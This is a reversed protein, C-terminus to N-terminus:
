SPLHGPHLWYHVLLIREFPHVTTCANFVEQSLHLHSTQRVVQRALATYLILSSSQGNLALPRADQVLYSLEAFVATSTRSAMLEDLHPLIRYSRHDMGSHLVYSPPCYVMLEKALQQCVM